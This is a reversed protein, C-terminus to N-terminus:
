FLITHLYVLEMLQKSESSSKCAKRMMTKSLATEEGDEKVIELNRNDMLMPVHNTLLHDTPKLLLATICAVIGFVVTTDFVHRYGATYGAQLVHTAVAAVMTTDISPM